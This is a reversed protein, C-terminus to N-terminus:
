KLKSSEDSVKQTSKFQKKEGEDFKKKKLETM